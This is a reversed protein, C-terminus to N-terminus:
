AVVAEVLARVGAINALLEVPFGHRKLLYEPANYSLWTQGQEDEWALVKLPLDIALSPAAVMLPTGAKPNGFLLMQSPRMRLGAREADGSFDISAFITLGKARALAELRDLTEPVPFPSRVHVLGQNATATTM